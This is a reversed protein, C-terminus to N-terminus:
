YQIGRKFTQKIHLLGEKNEILVIDAEKGRELRGRKDLNYIRAVNGSALEIADGFSMGTFKMINEVGKLLPFSAGALVNQEANLLMGDEKLIVNMGSFTYNGPPMGSLYIVDSTLILRERTKARLFVRIEEPLLHNGDAIISATLRDNDLQPWLPNNHRHILNACGNGLHTSLRAGNAVAKNIEETGAATHGMAVVLGDATCQKIFDLAGEVEPAVTVQIIRGGSARRYKEFEIWSPKRVHEFLHCGRYGDLASIFPGELHFGPVCQEVITYKRCAEDLIKFNRVLNEHSNTILTPIFTTVGERLISETAKLVGEPTLDDGSFDVNAFGNVQNDILGPSLYINERGRAVTKTEKLDVIVGGAVTIRVPKGTSYHIGEISVPLLQDGPKLTIKM